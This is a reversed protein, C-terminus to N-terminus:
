ELVPEVLREGLLRGFPDDDPGSPAGIAAMVETPVTGPDPVPLQGIARATLGFYGGAHPTAHARWWAEAYRSNLVATLYALHASDTPAVFYGGTTVNVIALTGEPDAAARAERNMYPVLVKPQWIATLNQTRSYGYWSPGMMEGGDRAELRARNAELYSWAMPYSDKMTTEPLLRGARYPFLLWDEPAEVAFRSIQRSGSVLPRLLETEVEVVKKLSASRLKSATDRLAGHLGFVNDAGTVLGQSIRALASVTTWGDPLEVGALTAALPGPREVWEVEPGEPL